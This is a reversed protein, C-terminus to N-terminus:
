MVCRNRGKRARRKRSREAITERESKSKARAGGPNAVPFCMSDSSTELVRQYKGELWAGKGGSAQCMEESRIRGVLLEWCCRKGSTQM